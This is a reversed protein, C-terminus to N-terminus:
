SAATANAQNGLAQYHNAYSNNNNLPPVFNSSGSAWGPTNTGTTSYKGTGIAQSISDLSINSFLNSGTSATPTGFVSSSNTGTTSGVGWTPPIPNTTYPNEEDNTGQKKIYDYLGM